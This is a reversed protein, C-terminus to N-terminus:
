QANAQEVGAVVFALHAFTTFDQLAAQDVVIGGHTGGRPLATAHTHHRGM